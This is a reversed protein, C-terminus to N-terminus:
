SSPVVEDPGVKGPLAGRNSRDGHSDHPSTLKVGTAAMLHACPPTESRRCSLVLRRVLTRHNEYVPAERRVLLLPQFLAVNLYSTIDSCRDIRVVSRGTDLETAHMNVGREIKVRVARCRQQMCSTRCSIATPGLAERTVSLVISERSTECHHQQTHKHCGDM